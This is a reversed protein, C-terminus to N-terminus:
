EIETPRPSNSRYVELVSLTARDISEVADPPRQVRGIRMTEGPNADLRGGLLVKKSAGNSRYEIMLRVDARCGESERCELICSWDTYDAHVTGRIEVLGVDLDPSVLAVDDVSIGQHAREPGQDPSPAGARDRRFWLGVVLLAAVVVAVVVLIRRSSM